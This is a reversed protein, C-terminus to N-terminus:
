QERRLDKPLLMDIEKETFTMEESHHLGVTAEKYAKSITRPAGSYLSYLAKQLEDRREVIEDINLIESKLDTLLSLYSERLNWIDSATNAHKQAIEGLDHDKSYSNLGFLIASLIASIIGILSSEGFVSILIGTTTFVSLVIKTIKLRMNRKQLLDACKEHTKNTWVVRAYIERLQAEVLDIRTDTDM